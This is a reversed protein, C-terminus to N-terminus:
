VEVNERDNGVDIRDHKLPLDIDIFQINVFQITSQIRDLPTCIMAFIANM